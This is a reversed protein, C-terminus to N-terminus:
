RQDVAANLKIGELQFRFPFRTETQIIFIDDSILVIDSDVEASPPTGILCEFASIHNLWFSECTVIIIIFRLLQM